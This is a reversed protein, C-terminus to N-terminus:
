VLLEGHVLVDFHGAGGVDSVTLTAADANVVHCNRHSALLETAAEAAWASREITVVEAAGAALCMQTLPALAGTGIELVRKGCVTSM